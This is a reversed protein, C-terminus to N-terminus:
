VCIYAHIYIYTCSYTGELKKKLADVLERVVVLQNASTVLNETEKEVGNEKEGALTVSESCAQLGGAHHLLVKNCVNDGSSSPLQSSSQTSAQPAGSFCQRYPQGSYVGNIGSGHHGYMENYRRTVDAVYVPVSSYRYPHYPYPYGLPHPQYAPMYYPPPQTLSSNGPYYLPQPLMSSSSIPPHSVFSKVETVNHNVPTSKTTSTRSKNNTVVSNGSTVATNATSLHSNAVSTTTTTVPTHSTTSLLSSRKTKDQVIKNGKSEDKPKNLLQVLGKRNRPKSRHPLIKKSSTRSHRRDQQRPPKAKRETSQLSEKLHHGDVRGTTISSCKVNPTAVPQRPAPM